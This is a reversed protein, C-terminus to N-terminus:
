RDESLCRSSLLTIFEYCCEIFHIFHFTLYDDYIIDAAIIYSVSSIDLLDDKTWLYQSRTLHSSMNKKGLAVGTLSSYVAHYEDTLDLERVVINSM